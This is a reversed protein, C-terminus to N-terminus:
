LGTAFNEPNKGKFQNYYLKIERMDKEIDGSPIIVKEATITKTTYDIAALVIPINAKLAIYYFGKKWNPNRSRTAEPTIALSFKPRSEIINAVQDVTSKKKGRDVPIGGMGKLISGLPFFFWEKKMMFGTERGISAYFLKGIIFDWNSTHPAACIIQKDFDEVNVVSKWGLLKHYIFSCIAKKM